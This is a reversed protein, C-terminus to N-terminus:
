IPCEFKNNGQIHPKCSIRRSTKAMHRYFLIQLLPSKAEAVKDVEYELSESKM